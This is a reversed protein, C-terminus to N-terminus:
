KGAAFQFNRLSSCRITYTELKDVVFSFNWNKSDKFRNRLFNDYSRQHSLQHLIEKSVPGLIIKALDYRSSVYIFAEIPKWTEQFASLERFLPKSEGYLPQIEFSDVNWSDIIEYCDFVARFKGRSFDFLIFTRPSCRSCTWRASRELSPLKRSFSAHCQVFFTAM